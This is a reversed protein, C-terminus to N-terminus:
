HRGQEIDAKIQAASSKPLENRLQDLEAIVQAKSRRSSIKRHPVLDVYPEGHKTLTVPQGTRRVREAIKSLNTKADFLGIEKM